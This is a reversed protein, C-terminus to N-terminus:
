DKAPSDDGCKCVIKPTFEGLMDVLEHQYRLVIRDKGSLMKRKMVLSREAECLAFCNWEDKRIFERKL